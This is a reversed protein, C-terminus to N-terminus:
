LPRHRLRSGSALFYALIPRRQITLIRHGFVDPLSPLRSLPLAVVFALSVAYRLLRCSQRPLEASSVCACTCPPLQPSSGRCRLRPTVGRLRCLGPPARGTTPALGARQVSRVREPLLAAFDAWPVSPVKRPTCDRVGSSRGALPPLAVSPGVALRCLQLSSSHRSRFLPFGQLAFGFPTQPTFYVRLASLPSFRSSPSFGQVRVKVPATPRVPTHPSKRFLHTSRCSLGVLPAPTSVRGALCDLPLGTSSRFRLVPVCSPDRRAAHATPFYRFACPDSPWSACVPPRSGL